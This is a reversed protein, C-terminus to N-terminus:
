EILDRMRGLVFVYKLRNSIVKTSAEVSKYRSELYKRERSNLLFISSEGIDFKRREAGLLTLYDEVMSIYIERQNEAQNINNEFSEVKTFIQQKKVAVDIETDQIKVDILRLKGREKRQIIPYSFSVGVKYDTPNFTGVLSNDGLGLLPNYDLRLDPKLDERVLRRDIDLQDFKFAYLLIEPHNAILENQKLNLVQVNQEFRTRDLPEPSVGDELVLPIFGEVWLYNELDIRANELAQAAKLLEANRTSLSILSELTDIAPKDGGEFSLIVAELRTEALEVGENAIDYFAYAQQWTLYANLAEYLLENVMLIQQQLTAELLIDARALEARRQDIMFGKGLPVSIGANWLGRAPLEDSDDLFIGSSQDYGAELDIGFWTPVKLKGGGVAYYNKGDYRKQDWQGELKPDFGGKAMRKESEASRMLLEAKSFIPHSKVVEMYEKATFIDSAQANLLNISICLVFVIIVKRM